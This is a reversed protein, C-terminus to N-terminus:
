KKIEGTREDYVEHNEGKRLCKNLNNLASAVTDWTYKYGAFLAIPVQGSLVFTEWTYGANQADIISQTRNIKSYDITHIYENLCNEDSTIFDSQEYHYDRKSGKSLLYCKDHKSYLYWDAFKSSRIPMCNLPKTPNEKDIEIFYDDLEDTNLIGNPMMFLHIHDKKEDTEAFHKVFAYFAIKKSRILDDLKTTLYDVSNYSITAIPKSTRLISSEM